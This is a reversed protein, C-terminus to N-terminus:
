RKTLNELEALRERTQRARDIAARDKDELHKWKGTKTNYLQMAQERARGAVVFGELEEVFTMNVLSKRDLYRLCVQCVIERKLWGENARKYNAFWHEAKVAPLNRPDASYWIAPKHCHLCEAAWQYESAIEEKTPEAKLAKAQAELISELPDQKRAPETQLQPQQATAM